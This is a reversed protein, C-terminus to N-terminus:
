FGIGIRISPGRVGLKPWPFDEVRETSSVDSYRYFTEIWRYRAEAFIWWGPSPHYAIGARGDGGAGFSTVSLTDTTETGSPDIIPMHQGAVTVWGNAGLILRFGTRGLPLFPEIAPGMMFMPFDKQHLYAEMDLRLGGASGISVGYTPLSTPAEPMRVTVQQGNPLAVLHTGADTGKWEPTMVGGSATMVSPRDYYLPYLVRRSYRSPRQVPPPSVHGTPRPRLVPPPPNTQQQVPQSQPPFQQEPQNVAVQTPRPPCRQVLGAILVESAGRQRLQDQVEPTLDFDFCRGEVYRLIRPVRVGGSIWLDLAEMTYPQQQAVVINPAFAGVLVMTVLLGRPAPFVSHLNFRAFM